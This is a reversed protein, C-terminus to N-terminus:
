RITNDLSQTVTSRRPRAKIAPGPPEIPVCPISLTDPIPSSEPCSSPSVRRSDRVAPPARCGPVSTRATSPSTTQNPDTVAPEPLGCAPLGVLLSRASRRQRDDRTPRQHPTSILYHLADPSHRPTSLRHLVHCAAIHRPFTRAVTSGLIESHPLGGSKATDEASDM